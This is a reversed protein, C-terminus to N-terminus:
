AAARGQSVRICSCLEATELAGSGDVDQRAFAAAVQEEPAGVFQRALAALAVEAGGLDPDLDLGQGPPAELVM